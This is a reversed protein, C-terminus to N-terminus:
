REEHRRPNEENQKFCWNWQQLSRKLTRCAALKKEIEKTQAM